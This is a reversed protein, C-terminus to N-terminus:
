DVIAATSGAQVRSPVALSQLTNDQYIASHWQLLISTTSLDEGWTHSVADYAPASNKSYTDFECVATAENNAEITLLRIESEDLPQYLYSMFSDTKPSFFYTSHLELTPQYYDGQPENSSSLCQTTATHPLSPWQESCLHLSLSFRFHEAWGVKELTSMVQRSAVTCYMYARRWIALRFSFLSQEQREFVSAITGADRLGSPMHGAGFSPM